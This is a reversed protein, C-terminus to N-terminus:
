IHRVRRQCFGAGNKKNLWRIEGRGNGESSHWDHTLASCAAMELNLTLVADKYHYFTSAIFSVRSSLSTKKKVILVCHYM